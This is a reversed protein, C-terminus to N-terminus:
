AHIFVWIDRWCLCCHYFYNDTVHKKGFV